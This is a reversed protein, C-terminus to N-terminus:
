NACNGTECKYFGNVVKGFETNRARTFSFRVIMTVNHLTPKLLSICNFSQSVFSFMFKRVITITSRLHIIKLKVFYLM